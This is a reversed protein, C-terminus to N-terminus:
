GLRLRSSNVSSCSPLYETARQRYHFYAKRLRFEDATGKATGSAMKCFAMRFVAYGLIFISIRKAVDIGTLERFRLLLFEMADSSLNWEVATGALDWAIDCPGPFFHDDGHTTADTKLIIGEGNRIWEHPQMRADCFILDGSALVEVQYNLGIGFEQQANFAVMEALLTSGCNKSRFESARFACYRAIRELVELSTKSSPLPGPTLAKYLIFGDEEADDLPCGFGSDALLRARQQVTEGFKGLGEFKFFATGDPSLFKLREMQPWCAPWGAPDHLLVKRWDGGGIYTHTGFRSYSTPGCKLFRFLHWRAAADRARLENLDPEVSGLLVIREAPVGAQVLAEAVSLFTSGSRGPGEDVILFRGSHELCQNVWRVQETTLQTVRDYPHGTPRVTVRQAPVSQKKLAATVVASLTTGISRIGVVAVPRPSDAIGGVASAFDLPHLAYYSFGEPPSTVLERPITSGDLSGALERVPASDGGLYLDALASTLEAIRCVAPSDVDALASELEGSQILTTLVSKKHQPNDLVNRLSDQLDRLLVSGAVSNRGDRFVWLDEETGPSTSSTSLQPDQM